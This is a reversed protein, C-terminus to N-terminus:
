NLSAAQLLRISLLAGPYSVQLAAAQQRKLRAPFRLCAQASWLCGSPAIAFGNNCTVLSAVEEPVTFVVHYYSTPLLEAMRAELWQAKALSQCKPCNRNRCSNYSNREKGCSDCEDIHGGLFATRCVEIARMARGQERSMTSGHIQRYQAGCAHFIDAVELPPRTM